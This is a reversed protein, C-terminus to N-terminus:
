CRQSNSLPESVLNSQGFPQSKSSSIESNEAAIGKQEPISAVQNPVMISISTKSNCGHKSDHNTAQINMVGIQKKLIM